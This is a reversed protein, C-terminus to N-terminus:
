TVANDVGSVVMGIWSAIDFVSISCRSGRFAGSTLRTAGSTPVSVDIPFSSVTVAGSTLRATVLVNIEIMLPPVM